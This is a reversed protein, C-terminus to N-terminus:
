NNYICKNLVINESAYNIWSECLSHRDRGTHIMSFQAIGEGHVFYLFDTNQVPVYESKRAYHVHFHPIIKAKFIYTCVHLPSDPSVWFYAILLFDVIKVRYDNCFKTLM